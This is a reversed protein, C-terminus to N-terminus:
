KKLLEEMIKAAISMDLKNGSAKAMVGLLAKFVKTKGGKYQSVLDPNNKLIDLCMKSIIDEDVILLWGKDKIVDLPKARPRELLEELVKKFVDLNIQKKFVLNLLEKLQQASIECTEANIKRKNLVTLFDNILINAIKAAELKETVIDKFYKLLYPENVLQIAMEPRLKFEEILHRRSDEPLEPMRELVLPVSIVDKSDEKTKLNLRLPPLNPEPMYRYDQVVEKDRMAVTARQAADWARTENVIRGGGELIARQRDIEHRVAAAVGRVSGINKIETRTNLPDGPRRMSVNADVRLAGEEMKGSCAGLRQVILVLEKVLAAAEEGDELDPEFVIEILPAGARNLDVLSRKLEADHLSKGSDQELQIQKIKSSKNYPKKHYGPTYVSFM